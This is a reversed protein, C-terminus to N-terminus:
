QSIRFPFCASIKGGLLVSVLCVALASIELLVLAKIRVLERYRRDRGGKLRVPDVVLTADPLTALDFPGPFHRIPWNSYLHFPSM